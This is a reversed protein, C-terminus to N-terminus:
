VVALYSDRLREIVSQRTWYQGHQLVGYIDRHSLNAYFSLFLRLRDEPLMSNRFCSRLFRVEEPQEHDLRDLWAPYPPAPFRPNPVPGKIGDLLRRYVYAPFDNLDQSPSTFDGLVEALHEDAQLGRDDPDELHLRGLFTSLAPIFARRFQELVFAQEKPSGRRYFLLLNGFSPPTLSQMLGDVNGPTQPLPTTQYVQEAVRYLATTPRCMLRLILLSRDNLPTAPDLLRREHARTAVAEGAALAHQSGDGFTRYLRRLLLDAFM